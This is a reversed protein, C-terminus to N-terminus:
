FKNWLVERNAVWSSTWTQVVM